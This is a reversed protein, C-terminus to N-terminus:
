AGPNPLRNEQRPVEKDEGDMTAPQHCSRGHCSPAIGNGHLEGNAMSGNVVYCLLRGSASPPVDASTNGFIGNASAGAKVLSKKSRIVALLTKALHWVKVEIEDNAPIVAVLAAHDQFVNFGRDLTRVAKGLFKRDDAGFEFRLITCDAYGIVVPLFHISCEQM